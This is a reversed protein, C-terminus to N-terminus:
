PNGERYVAFLSEPDIPRPSPLPSLRSDIAKLRELPVPREFHETDSFLVAMARGKKAQEAIVEESLVGLRAFKRHLTGPHAIVVQELLSYAVVQGVRGSVYWLIRGPGTLVPPHPKRFYVHQRSLGLEPSSGWLQEERQLLQAAPEPRIPVLFCPLDADVVKLPWLMRELEAVDFVSPVAIDLGDRRLEAGEDSDTLRDAGSGAGPAANPTSPDHPRADADTRKPDDHRRGSLHTFLDPLAATAEAWTLCGQMVPAYLCGDGDALYGSETLAERVVATAYADSIFISTLGDRCARKRLMHLLQIAITKALRSPAVRLFTVELARGDTHIEPSATPSAFLGAVVTGDPDRIVKRAEGHGIATVPSRVAARFHAATEGDAHNLLPRLEIEAKSEVSSVTYGSSLLRMPSYNVADRMEDLHVILDTPTSIWLDVLGDSAADLHDVANQDRTVFADAHTLSAEALLRADSPLSTDKALAVPNIAAAIQDGLAAAAAIDSSSRVPLMRYKGSNATALLMERIRDNPHKNLEGVISTTLVLEVEDELWTAALARSQEAQPGRDPEHLDRFVNTDIAVVLRMLDDNFASFLDPQGHDRWFTTLLHGKASRGPRNSLPVFGLSPWRKYAPWNRRCSLKIGRRDAHMASLKEILAEPVGIGRRAPAVCLHALRVHQRPLGFLAYGIVTRGELAVLIHDAAAYESFGARSLPGLWKKHADGIAIVQELEDPATVDLLRVQFSQTTVGVHHLFLVGFSPSVFCFHRAPDCGNPVLLSLARLTRVASAALCIRSITM